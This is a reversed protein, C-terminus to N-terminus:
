ARVAGPASVRDASRLAVQLVTLEGRAVALHDEVDARNPVRGEHWSVALSDIHGEHEARSLPEFLDPWWKDPTFPFCPDTSM